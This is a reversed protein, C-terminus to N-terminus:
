LLKEKVITPIGRAALLSPFLLLLHVLFACFMAGFSVSGTTCAYSSALMICSYLYQLVVVITAVTTSKKSYMCTLSRRIFSVYRSPFAMMVLPVLLAFSPVSYLWSPRGECAGCVTIFRIIFLLAHSSLTWAGAVNHHTSPIPVATSLTSITRPAPPPPSATPTAPLEKLHCSKVYAISPVMPTRTPSRPPSPSSSQQSPVPPAMPLIPSRPPSLKVLAKMAEPPTTIIATEKNMEPKMAGEIDAKGLASIVARVAPIALIQETLPRDTPSASLMADILQELAAPRRRDAHSSRLMNSVVPLPYVDFM